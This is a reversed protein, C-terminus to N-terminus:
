NNENESATSKALQGGLFISGAIVLPVILNYWVPLKDWVMYYHNFGTYLLYLLSVILVPTRSRSIASTLWGTILGEIIFIVLNLCLMVTTFHSFDQERFMFAAAERYAPWLLGAGVGFGFFLVWWLVVGTFFGTITRLNM